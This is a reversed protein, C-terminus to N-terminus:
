NLILLANNIKASLDKTLSRFFLGKLFSKKKKLLAVVDINGESVYKSITQVMDKGTPIIKAAINDRGILQELQNSIDHIKDFNNNGIHILELDVDLAKLLQISKPSWTSLDFDKDIFLAIKKPMLHDTNESVIFVPSDAKAIIETSVSGLISKALGAGTSGMVIISGESEETEELVVPAAFGTLVDMAILPDIHDDIDAQYKRTNDLFDKLRDSRKKRLEDWNLAPKGEVLLHAPPHIVHIAKVHTYLMNALQLGYNVAVQSCESFDVPVIINNMNSKNTIKFIKSSVKHAFGVPSLERKEIIEDGVKIAPISGLGENLFAQMDSVQELNIPVGLSSLGKRILIKIYEISANPLAFVKVQIPLRNLSM